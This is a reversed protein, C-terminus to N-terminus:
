LPLQYGIMVLIGRTKIEDKPDTSFRGAVLNGSRLDFSGGKNFNTLGLAYRGEIFASGNLIALSVGAGFAVGFETRKLVQLFDGELVRGALEASLSADLLFSVFPGAAIFPRVEKGIGLTALLPLDIQSSKIKVEPITRQTFISGKAVYMPELQVSLYENLSIGIFGGVGFQTRSKTDYNTVTPDAITIKLDDLNLGGSVGAYFDQGYASMELTVISVVVFGCISKEM